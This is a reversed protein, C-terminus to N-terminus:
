LGAVYPSQVSAVALHLDGFRAPDAEAPRTGHRGAGLREAHSTVARAAPVDREHDDGLRNWPRARALCYADVPAHFDARGQGGPLHQGGGAKAAPLRRPQQPQFALECAGPAARVAATLDLRLDGAHLGTLGVPTLVPALLGGGIDRPPEVHDADFVQHGRVHHARHLPGHLRGAPVDGLLGPEVTLDAPGSPALEDLAEFVLGRASDLS